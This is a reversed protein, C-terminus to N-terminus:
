KFMDAIQQKKMQNKITKYSLVLKRIHNITNKNCKSNYYENREKSSAMYSCTGICEDGNYHSISHLNINRILSCEIWCENAWTHKFQFYGLEYGNYTITYWLIGSDKMDCLSVKCGLNSIEKLLFDDIYKQLNQESRIKPFQVKMLTFKVFNNYETLNM